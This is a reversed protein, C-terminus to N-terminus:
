RLFALSSLFHWHGLMIAMLFEPELWNALESELCQESTTASGCVLFMGWPFSFLFCELSPEKPNGTRPWQPLKLHNLCSFSLLCDSSFVGRDEAEPFPRGHSSTNFATGAVTPLCAAHVCANSILSWQFTFPPSNM